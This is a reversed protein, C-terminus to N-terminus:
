WQLGVGLHHLLPRRPHLRLHQRQHRVCGRHLQPRPLHPRAARRRLHRPLRLQLARDLLPHPHARHLLRRADHHTLPTRREIDLHSSAHVKFVYRGPARRLTGERRAAERQVQGGLPDPPPVREVRIQGPPSSTLFTRNYSLGCVYVDDVLQLFLESKAFPSAWVAASEGLITKPVGPKPSSSQITYLLYAVNAARAAKLALGPGYMGIRLLLTFQRPPYVVLVRLLLITQVCIPTIIYIVTIVSIWVPNLPM